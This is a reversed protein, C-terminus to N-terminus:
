LKMNRRLVRLRSPLLNRKQLTGDISACKLRQCCPITQNMEDPLM